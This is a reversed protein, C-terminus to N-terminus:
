IQSEAGVNRTIRHHYMAFAIFEWQSFSLCMNARLMQKCLILLIYTRTHTHANTDNDNLLRFTFPFFICRNAHSGQSHDLLITKDHMECEVNMKNVNVFYISCVNVM